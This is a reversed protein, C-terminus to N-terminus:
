PRERREDLISTDFLADPRIRFANVMAQIFRYSPGGRGSLWVKVANESAGIAGAFQGPTLGTAELHAQLKRSCLTQSSETQALGVVQHKGM